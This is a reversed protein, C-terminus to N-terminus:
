YRPGRFWNVYDLFCLVGLAMIIYGAAALQGNVALIAAIFMLPWFIFLFVM